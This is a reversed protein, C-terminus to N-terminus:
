AHRRISAIIVIDGPHNPQNMMRERWMRRAIGPSASSVKATPRLARWDCVDLQAPDLKHRGKRM